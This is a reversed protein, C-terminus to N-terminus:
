VAFDLVRTIKYELTNAFEIPRFLQYIKEVYLVCTKHWLLVCVIFLIYKFQVKVFYFRTKKAQSITRKLDRSHIIIRSDGM